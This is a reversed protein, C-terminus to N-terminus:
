FTNPIVHKCIQIHQTSYISTVHVSAPQQPLPAYATKKTTAGCSADTIGRLRVIALKWNHMKSARVAGGDGIHLAQTNHTSSLNQRGKVLVTTHVSSVDLLFKSRADLTSVFNTLPPALRRRRRRGGVAERLGDVDSMALQSNRIIVPTWAAATDSTSPKVHELVTLKFYYHRQRIANGGHAKYRCRISGNFRFARTPVDMAAPWRWRSNDPGVIMIGSGREDEIEVTAIRTEM